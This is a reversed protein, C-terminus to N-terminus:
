KRRMNRISLLIGAFIHLIPIGGGAVASLTTNFGIIFNIFLFMFGLLIMYLGSNNKDSEFYIGLAIFFLITNSWGFPNSGYNYNFLDEVVEPTTVTSTENTDPKGTEFLTFTQYDFETHNLHLIIRFDNSTNVLFKLNITNTSINSVTHILTEIGTSQNIEYVFIQTNETLGMSDSYNVYLAGENDNLNSEFTIVEIIPTDNTYNTEELQLRFTKTFISDSPIYDSYATIYTSKSIEVKYVTEPILYVDAQGNADTLLISVNEYDNTTNIYRKINIKANEIPEDYDNEVTLLYLYGYSENTTDDPPVYDDHGVTGGGDIDPPLFFSINYFTNELLDLYEIRTHYGDKSIQIAIDEGNPVDAVNINTPNNSSTNIYTETGQQNTIFITYNTIAIHPNNEKYVNLQLSGYVVNAPISYLHTNDVFAYTWARYYELNNSNTQTDTTTPTTGNYVENGTNYEPFAGTDNRIM